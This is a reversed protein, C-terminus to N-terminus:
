VGLFESSSQLRWEAVAPFRPNKKGSNPRNAWARLRVQRCFVYLGLRARSMAVVLRRVDRIHGIARTRVLSLLVYDNQQGQYRDVTTVSGFVVGGAVAPDPDPRGTSAQQRTLPPEPEYVGQGSDSRV